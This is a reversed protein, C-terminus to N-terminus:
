CWQCSGRSWGWWFGSMSPAKSTSDGIVVPDNGGDGREFQDYDNHMEGFYPDKDQQKHVLNKKPKMSQRGIAALVEEFKTEVFLKLGQLEKIVEANTPESDGGTSQYM